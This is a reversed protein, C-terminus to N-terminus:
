KGSVNSTEEGLMGRHGRRLGEGEGGEAGKNQKNKTYAQKKTFMICIILCQMHTNKTCIKGEQCSCINQTYNNPIQKHTKQVDYISIVKMNMSDEEFRKQLVRKDRTGKVTKM